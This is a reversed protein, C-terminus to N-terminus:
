LSSRLILNPLTFSPIMRHMDCRRHRDSRLLFSEGPQRKIQRVIVGFVTELLLQMISRNLDRWDTPMALRQSSIIIIQVTRDYRSNCGLLM